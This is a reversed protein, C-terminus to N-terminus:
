QSTYEFIILSMDYNSSHKKLQNKLIIERPVNSKFPFLYITGSVHDM